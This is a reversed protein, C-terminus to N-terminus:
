TRATRRLALANVVWLVLGVLLLLGARVFVALEIQTLLAACVLVGLVPFVTPARFHDHDVPERRLVLASINVMIFSALILASTTNALIALEGGTFVLILSFVVIFLIAVWPIRTTASVRGLVAPLVRENAMGYLQRSYVLLGTLVANGVALMAIGTFVTTPVALPGRQVVELLPGSSAALRPIEVVTAAAFAVLVYLLCAILLAGVLVRPYARSPNRTEESMNVLDEFGIFTYFALGAGALIALPPSTGQQFEFARSPEGTGTLLAAAGIVLILVLGGVEIITLVINFRVSLSVGRLNIAGMVLIFVLATWAAPVATLEEFYGGVALSLTAVANIGSAVLAFTVLFTVLPSKFARNIYTGAGGARPYKTVLEAYSFATFTACVLAVLIPAWIAGGVQAGIEGVLSYIGAGLIGALGICLLQTTGITRNLTHEPADQVNSAPEAM